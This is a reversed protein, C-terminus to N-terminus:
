RKESIQEVAKRLDEESPLLYRRTPELTEHGALHAIRDLSVGAEALEKCFTHRLTHCSVKELGAKKAYGTIMSRITRTTMRKNQQSLFLPDYEECQQERRYKLWAELGEIVDKNLPVIRFKGGKGHRIIVDGTRKELYIDAMNLNAVEEVRLGAKAMLLCIALNRAKKKENKEQELTRFFRASKHKTLWKPAQKTLMTRQMKVKLMPNYSVVNTEIAFKYFTKLSAIIKNVYAPSYRKIGSLYKVFEHMHLTTVKDPHFNDGETEEYWQILKQLLTPYEQITDESKGEKTLWEVYNSILDNTDTVLNM